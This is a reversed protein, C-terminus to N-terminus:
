PLINITDNYVTSICNDPNQATISYDVLGLVSPNIELIAGPTGLIDTGTIIANINASASINWQYSFPSYVGNIDSPVLLIKTSIVSVQPAPDFSAESIINYPNCTTIQPKVIFTYEQSINCGDSKNFYVTFVYTGPTQPTGYLTGVIGTSIPPSSDQGSAGVAGVAFLLGPPLSIQEVFWTGSGSGSSYFTISPISIGATYESIPSISPSTLITDPACIPSSNLVKSNYEQVVLQNTRLDRKTVSFRYDGFTTPTGSITGTSQNINLGPPLNFASYSVGM